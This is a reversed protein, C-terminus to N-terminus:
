TGEYRKMEEGLDAHQERIVALVREGFRDRFARRRAVYHRGRRIVRGDHQRTKRSVLEPTVREQVGAFHEADFPQGLHECVRGFAEPADKSLAEYRLTTKQRTFSESVLWNALHQGYLRAWHVVADTDDPSQRHYALQSFITPVPDRYLYIVSPREIDLNMDHTHWLLYERNRHRFFSRVLIPRDFYLECLM